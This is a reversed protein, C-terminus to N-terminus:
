EFEKLAEGLNGEDTELYLGRKRMEELFEWISLRAKAAAESLSAKHVRYKELASKIRLEKVGESLASKFFASQGVGSEKAFRRLEELEEDEFRVTTVGM